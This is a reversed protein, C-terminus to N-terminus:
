IEAQLTSLQVPKAFYLRYVPVLIMFADDAYKASAVPQADDRARNMAESIISDSSLDLPVGIQGAQDRPELHIVPHYQDTRPPRWQRLGGSDAAAHEGPRAATEGCRVLTLRMRGADGVTLEGSLSKRM